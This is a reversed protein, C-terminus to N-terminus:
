QFKDKVADAMRVALASVTKPDSKKLYAVVEQPKCCGKLTEPVFPAFMCVVTQAGCKKLIGENSAVLRAYDEMAQKDEGTFSPYQATLKAFTKLGGSVLTEKVTKDEMKDKQNKQDKKEKRAAALIEEKDQDVPASLASTTDTKHLLSDAFLLEIRNKVSEDPDNFVLIIRGEEEIMRMDM